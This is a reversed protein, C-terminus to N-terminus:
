NGGLFPSLGRIYDDHHNEIALLRRRLTEQLQRRGTLAENHARAGTEFDEPSQMYELDAATTAELRCASVLLDVLDSLKRM